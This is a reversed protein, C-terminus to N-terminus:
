GARELAALEAELRALEDLSDDESIISPDSSTIESDAVTKKDADGYSTHKEKSSNIDKNEDLPYYLGDVLSVKYYPQEKLVYKRCGESIHWFGLEDRNELGYELVDKRDVRLCAELFIEFSDEDLRINFKNRCESLLQCAYSLDLPREVLDFATNLDDVNPRLTGQFSHFKQYWDLVYKELPSEAHALRSKRLYFRKKELWLPQHAMCKPRTYPRDLGGLWSQHLQEILQHDPKHIVTYIKWNDVDVNKLFMMWYPRRQRLSALSIPTLHIM